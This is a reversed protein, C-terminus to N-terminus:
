AARRVAHQWDRTVRIEGDRTVMLASAAEERLLVEAKEGAIMVIKTLADAIMCSPAGITAGCAATAADGSGPDIIAASTAGTGTTPDFLPASSALAADQVEVECLIRRPDRPDRISIPALAAGLAALDGGANVLGRPMEHALLVDRARDVAFGKAIGGLDVAIGPRHAIVRNGELLELADSGNGKGDHVAEDRGDVGQARPFATIDFAGASRRHLDLATELVQFTWPHVAVPRMGAVRNIRTVDSDPSQFSMLRHVEAIAAFAADIARDMAAHPAGAVAIEVFTGLLPRARRRSNSAPRM